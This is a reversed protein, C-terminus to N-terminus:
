GSPETTATATEAEKPPSADTYRHKQRVDVGAVRGQHLIVTVESFLYDPCGIFPCSEAWLRVADEITQQSPLM